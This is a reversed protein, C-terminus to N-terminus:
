DAGGGVHRWMDGMFVVKWLQWRGGLWSCGPCEGAGGSNKKRVVGSGLVSGM